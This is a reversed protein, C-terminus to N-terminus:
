VPFRQTSKLETAWLGFTACGLAEQECVSAVFKVCGDGSLEM